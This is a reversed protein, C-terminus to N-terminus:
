KSKWFFEASSETHGYPSLLGVRLPAVLILISSYSPSYDNTIFQSCERERWSNLNRILAYRNLRCFCRTLRKAILVSMIMRYSRVKEGQLQRAEKATKFDIEKGRFSYAKQPFCPNEQIKFWSSRAQGEQTRWSSNYNEKRELHYSSKCNSKQSVICVFVFMSFIVKTIFSTWYSTWFSDIQCNQDIIGYYM